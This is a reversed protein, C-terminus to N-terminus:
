QCVNIDTLHKLGSAIQCSFNCLQGETLVGPVVNFGSCDQVVGAPKSSESCDVVQGSLPNSASPFESVTNLSNVSDDQLTEMLNPSEALLAACVHM